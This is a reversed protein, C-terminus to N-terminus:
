EKGLLLRLQNSEDAHEPPLESAYASFVASIPPSLGVWTKSMRGAIVLADSPGAQVLFEQLADAYLTEISQRPFETVVHSEAIDLLSGMLNFREGTYSSARIGDVVIEFYSRVGMYDFVASEDDCWAPPKEKDCAAFASEWWKMYPRCSLDFFKRAIERRDQDLKKLGEGICEGDDGDALKWLWALQPSDLRLDRAALFAAWEVQASAAKVAQRSSALLLLGSLLLVISKM